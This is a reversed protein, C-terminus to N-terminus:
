NGGIAQATQALTSAPSTNQFQIPSIVSSEELIKNFFLKGNPDQLIQPTRAITQLLETLTALREAKNSAENTIEVVVGYELNKFMDNWTVTEIESPKIFRQNGQEVLMDKIQGQIAAEDIPEALKGSLIAQKNTQNVIRNTEAKIYMEDLKIVDEMGLTASIEDSTNFKTKLFPLIYTRLMEELYLAKNEIMMDFFNHVEQNLVAVQRYATGSPMTGGSIADPTSTIQQALTQWQQSYNQLSTIDHSNNAIQTLPQNPSHIMIDGTEIAQLVNQGVFSGDSTQFILKSALDLQDKIAKVSHNVMWQAEFLHEVAGVGMVRGDEEILHTIIYPNKKERGSVLTFDDYEGKGDGVYSIVHMQQVFTDDDKEKGTLFSLPFEGHVEYLEIYDSNTDVQQDDMTKRTTRADLLAKVKEQDYSKNNRLQSPTYFLREIIPNNYFDVSDVILRNWPILNMHLEGEKEVFKVVASGYKALTRGWNNLFLGVNHKRMYEQLHINLLFAGITDKARTAKVKIDKRDIDTAKYWINVAATNINFFPKERGLSDTGGSVHKSNAYADIKEINEHLSWTVYKSLTTTGTTFEVKAKRVINYIDM